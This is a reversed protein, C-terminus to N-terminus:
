IYRYRSLLSFIHSNPYMSAITLSYWGGNAGIDIVDFNSYAKSAFTCSNFILYGSTPEFGCFNLSELACDRSDNINVFYKFSPNVISAIIGTHDLQLNSLLGLSQLFEPASFLSQIRELVLFDKAVHM